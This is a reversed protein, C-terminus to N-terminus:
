SPLSEMTQLGVTCDFIQVLHHIGFVRLEGYVAEILNAVSSNRRRKPSSRPSSIPTGESIAELNVDISLKKEIDDANFEDNKDITVTGGDNDSDSPIYLSTNIDEITVNNADPDMGVSIM